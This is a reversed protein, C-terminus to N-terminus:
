FCLSKTTKAQFAMTQVVWNLPSVKPFQFLYLSLTTDGEGVLTHPVKKKLFSQM